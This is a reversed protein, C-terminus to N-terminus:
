HGTKWMELLLSPHVWAAVMQPFLVCVFIPCVLILIVGAIALEPRDEEFNAYKRFLFVGGMLAVLAVCFGVTYVIRCYLILADSMTM